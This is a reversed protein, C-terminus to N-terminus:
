ELSILFFKEVIMISLVYDFDNEFVILRVILDISDPPKETLHFLNM